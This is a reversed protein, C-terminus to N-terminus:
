PKHADGDLNDATIMGGRVRTVRAPVPQLKLTQWRGDDDPATKHVFVTDGIAPLAAAQYHARDVNAGDILWVKFTKTRSFPAV